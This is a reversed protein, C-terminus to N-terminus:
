GTGGFTKLLKTQAHVLFPSKRCHTRTTKLASVFEKPDDISDLEMWARGIELATHADSGVISPKKFAEAVKKARDNDNSKIVRSNFIEVIDAKACINESMVAEKRLSDFPHPVIVLGGQMRIEDMVEFAPGRAIKESIFLGIIDGQDTSVEEGIITPFSKSLKFAADIEDHDTIAIATLGRKKAVKAIKETTLLSHGSLRTHVHLDARIM